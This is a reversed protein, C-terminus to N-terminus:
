QFDALRHLPLDLAPLRVAVRDPELRPLAPAASLRELWPDNAAPPRLLRSAEIIPRYGTCRCLNGGLAEPDYGARGPRYYEAFSRRHVPFTLLVYRVLM